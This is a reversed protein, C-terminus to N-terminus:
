IHYIVMQTKYNQLIPAEESDITYETVKMHKTFFTNNKYPAFLLPTLLVSWVAKIM